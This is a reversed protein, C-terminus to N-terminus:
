LDDAGLRQTVVPVTATRVVKDTTGGLIAGVRGRYSSAMVIADMGEADAYDVIEESVSGTRIATECDVGRETAMSRVEETVREGFERYEARMQEEDDRISLARPAGPLDIVYLVHVVSGLATALRIGHEAGRKAEDSGDYPILISDYM